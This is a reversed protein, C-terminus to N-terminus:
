SKTLEQVHVDLNHNVRLGYIGSAEAASAPASWVLEGNVRFQLNGEAATVSLVNNQQGQENAAHVAAHETWGGESLTHTEAGARHKVLFRGDTRVLFYYYVQGDENLNQGGVFIGYGEPHRPTQTQSMNATITYNGEATNETRWYVAAPGVTFHWGPAMTRFNVNAMSGRDARAMWGAPMAGGAVANDPDSDRSQAAAPLALMAVTALTVLTRM